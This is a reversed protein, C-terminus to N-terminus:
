SQGVTEEDIYRPEKAEPKAASNSAGAKVKYEGVLKETNQKDAAMLAILSAVEAYSHKVTLFKLVENYVSKSVLVYDNEM